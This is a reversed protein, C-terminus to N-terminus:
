CMWDGAVAEAAVGEADCLEEWCEQRKAIALAEEFQARAKCAKDALKQLESISKAKVWWTVTWIAANSTSANVMRAARPLSKIFVLAEAESKFGGLENRVMNPTIKM